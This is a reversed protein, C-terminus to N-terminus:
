ELTARWCFPVEKMASLNASRLFLNRGALVTCSQIVFMASLPLKIVEPRKERPDYGDEFLIHVQGGEEEEEEEEEQRM